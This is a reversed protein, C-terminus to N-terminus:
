VLASGIPNGAQSEGACVSVFTANGATGIGSKEALNPVSRDTLALPYDCVFLCESMERQITFNYYASHSRKHNINGNGTCLEISLTYRNREKCFVM